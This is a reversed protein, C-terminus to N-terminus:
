NLEVSGGRIRNVGSAHSVIHAGRIVVKGDRYLTISADGCKLAISEEARVTVRRRDVSIEVLEERPAPLLVGIIIPVEPNNSEFVALLEKGVDHAGIPVCTRAHLQFGHLRVLPAGDQAFGVLTVTVPGPVNSTAPATELLCLETNDGHENV